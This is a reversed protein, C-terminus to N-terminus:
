TISDFKSIIFSAGAVLIAPLSVEDEEKSNQPRFLNGVVKLGESQFHVKEKQQMNIYRSVEFSKIFL